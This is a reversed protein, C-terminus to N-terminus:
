SKQYASVAEEWKRKLGAAARPDRKQGWADPDGQLDEDRFLAMRKEKNKFGAFTCRTSFFCKGSTTERNLYDYEPWDIEFQTIPIVHLQFWGDVVHRFAHSVNRMNWTQIVDMDEFDLCQVLLEQPLRSIHCAM